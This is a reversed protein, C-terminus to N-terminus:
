LNSKLEDLEKRLKQIEAVALTLISNYYLSNCLSNDEPHMEVLEPAIKLVEEAIFGYRLNDGYETEKNYYYSVPRLQMLISNSIPLDQITNKFRLASSTTISSGTFDCRLISGYSLAQRTCVYSGNSVGGFTAPLHTYTTNNDTGWYLNGSSNVKLVQGSNGSGYSPLSPIATDDANAGAGGTISVLIGKKFTMRKSSWGGTEVKYTGDVGTYQTGNSETKINGVYTVDKKIVTNANVTLDGKIEVTKQITVNSDIAGVTLKDANLFLWGGTSYIYDAKDSTLYIFQSAGLTINGDLLINGSSDVNLVTDGNRVGKVTLSTDLTAGTAFMNGEADVFFKNGFTLGTSLMSGVGAYTFGSGGGSGGSSVEWGGINGSAAVLRGSANVSFTPNTESNAITAGYIEAGVIKGGDLTGTVTLTGSIKGGTAEITGKIDAGTATLGGDWNVQFYKSSSGYVKLPYSAATADLLVYQSGKYAQLTFGSYAKLKKGSLSLQIGTAGSDSFDASQLYQEEKSIKVLTKTASNYATNIQLYPSGSDSLIIQHDGYGTNGARLDFNYATIGTSSGALTLLMGKGLSETSMPDYDASQLYYSNDDVYMLNRGDNNKVILYPKNDDMSNLYLNKSTVKLKYADLTGEKLDLRFGKGNESKTKDTTVFTTKTYDDTQLYYANDAIEILHKKEDSQQASHIIFYPSISDIHIKSQKYSKIYIGDDNYKDMYAEYNACGLKFESDASLANWEDESYLTTSPKYTGNGLNEYAAGKIDIFGDDLDILMGASNFINYGVVKGSDNTVPTKYNAYTGDYNKDKNQLYSASAITGQDGDFYIRGRGSKGFFAKGDVGLHFSQAGDNYGYIGLGSANNTDFNAGSEINGMLVGEFTNNETKRGAGVMTSLITGNAENISFEGDWENLTSSVYNNQTIIIPQTWVTDRNANKCVIVPVVFTGNEFSCYMPAPLLTNKRYDLKPMYDIINRYNNKAATDNEDLYAGTNEFYEISWSCDLIEVDGNPTHEFLKYPEDSLRSVVGKNDYVIMTPGSIYYNPSSSYPIPYLTSLRLTRNSGDSLKEPYEVSAKAIGVYPITGYKPAVEILREKSGEESELLALTTGSQGNTAYLNIKLNATTIEETTDEKNISVNFGENLTLLEGDGNRLTLKLQLLKEAPPLTAIQTTNPVFSLTYNTGNTGFSSFTLPLEGKVINTKNNSDKVHVEVLITNNQASPEYYPKIKYSFNKDRPEIVINDEMVPNGLCDYLLNGESDKAQVPNNTYAITKNFYMYGSKSYDTASGDDAFFGLDDVLYKKDYTLMTSNTPIYWYIEAGALAEDGSLVGDYSCTIMRRRSEDAINVLDNASSYSQYHDQSYAGHEIRIIDNADISFQPPIDEAELNTFVLTNSLIKEHNRFLVVQFKEVEKTPEMFLSLLKEKDSSAKYYTVEKTIETGNDDTETVTITDGAEPLFPNKVAIDGNEGKSFKVREWNPGLFRGFTYEINNPDDAPKNEDYLLTPVDVYRYLYICYKNAYEAFAAEDKEYAPYDSAATHTEYYKFWNFDTDSIGRVYSTTIMKSMNTEIVKLVREVRTNYNNYISRYGAMDSDKRSEQEMTTFLARVDTLANNIATSFTEFPNAGNCGDESNYWDKIKTLAEQLKANTTYVENQLNYGHQLFKAYLSVHNQTATEATDRAQVLKASVTINDGNVNTTVYSSILKNLSEKLSDWGNIQRGLAQLESSLDTTLLKYTDSMLPETEEVNAALTLSLEDNAITGKGSNRTLRSDTHAFKLYNIEDYNPDYIGDSYGTYGDLENKNYWILGFSKNNTEDGNGGNYKYTTSNLTYFKLSNNEIDTLNSGFGIKLNKFHIPYQGIKLGDKDLFENPIVKGDDEFKVGQYISLVIEDIIGDTAIAVQKEQRSSIVFSYPNGIMEDSDFTIFRMTRENSNVETKSYLELRLGYGGASLAALDTQFDGSITIVNYVGNAQLAYESSDKTIQKGWVQRITERGNTQLTFNNISNGDTIKNTSFDTAFVNGLPPIYTLAGSTTNESYLGIIFKKQSWDGNMISVRVQDGSKYNTDNVYADFTITGDSVIYHGRSKDSDDTITAIVTTDYSLDTLRQEVIVDISKFFEDLNFSM